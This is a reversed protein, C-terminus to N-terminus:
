YHQHGGCGSREEKIDTSSFSLKSIVVNHDTHNTVQKYVETILLLLTPNLQPMDTNRRSRHSRICADVYACVEEELFYHLKTLIQNWCTWDYALAYEEGESAGGPHHLSLLIL